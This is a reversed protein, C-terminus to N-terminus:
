LVGFDHNYYMSIMTITCQTSFGHNRHVIVIVEFRMFIERVLLLSERHVIEHVISYPM